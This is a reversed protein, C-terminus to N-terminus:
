KTKRGRNCKLRGSFSDITLNFVQISIFISKYFSTRGKNNDKRSSYSVLGSLKLEPLCLIRYRLSTNSCIQCVGLKKISRVGIGCWITMVVLPLLGGRLTYDSLTFTIPRQVVKIQIKEGLIKTIPKWRNENALGPGL